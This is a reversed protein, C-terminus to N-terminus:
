GVRRSLTRCLQSVSAVVVDAEQLRKKPLSSALAIVLGSGARQGSRIGYPANEIVMGRRPPVGLRRFALRYPEPHPKGHRVRDGTVVADFLRLVRAPVARAVERSSTGTVLGLRLGAHKLQRLLRVLAPAVQIGRALVRFRREKERLLARVASPRPRIGLHRVILARASVAGPEGEWEYIEQPRVTIGHPRLAEQWAQAHRPMSDILVGDLDFCVAAWRREGISPIM